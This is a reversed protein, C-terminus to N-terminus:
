KEAQAYATAGVTEFRRDFLIKADFASENSVPALVDVTQQEWAIVDNWSAPIDSTGSEQVLYQADAPHLGQTQVFYGTAWQTPHTDEWANAQAWIAVYARIAAAKGPDELSATPVYLFATDDRLGHDIATAGDRGYELLYRRVFIAGLPAADVEHSALANVYVNTTSSINVLQVDSVPIRAQQLARMVISGQAQGPAFAIRKGRLDALSTIKVGPAVGIEYVPHTLPNKRQRVAVIKVNLGTWQAWIPPVDGIAGIDLAHARFAQFTQPGGSINAWVVKFPLKNILGSLILARQTMPDGIVLTTGPSIQGPVPATLPLTAASAALPRSLLLGFAFVAFWKNHILYM